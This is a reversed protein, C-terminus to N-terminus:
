QFVHCNLQSFLEFVYLIEYDYSLFPLVASTSLYWYCIKDVYQLVLVLLQWIKLLSNLVLVLLQWFPELVYKLVLVLIVLRDKAVACSPLRWFNAAFGGHSRRGPTVTTKFIVHCKWSNTRKKLNLYIMM